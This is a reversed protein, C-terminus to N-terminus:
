DDKGSWQTVQSYPKTFRAFGLYPPMMAWLQNFKDIRSHQKLFFTVGDMLHQLMCLYLSHFINPVIISTPSICKMNWLIGQSIGFAGYELCQRAEGRKTEDGQTTLIMWQFFLWCHRLQALCSNGEGFSSQPADGVPCRPHQILHFQTNECNDANWACTVPYCQQM